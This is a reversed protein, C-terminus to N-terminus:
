EIVTMIESVPRRPTPRPTAAPRGLPILAALQWPAKVELLAALEFGAILPGTMWCTGYGLDHARLLLNQVAAGVSQRGPDGRLRHIEAFSFGRRPLVVVDWPSEYPKTLVALTVPAEVFFTGSRAVGKLREEFGEVEPWSEMERIKDVVAQRMRELLQRNRVVLFHWMQQNSASPALAAARIIEEVDEQPVPADSFRRVSRRSEIAELLEM